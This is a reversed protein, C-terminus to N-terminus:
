QTDVVVRLGARLTRSPMPYGPVIAYRVDFLNECAARLMWSASGVHLPVQVGIDARTYGDLSQTNDSTTFRHSVRDIALSLQVGGITNWEACVHTQEMPLFPLEMGEAKDGAFRANARRNSSRDESVSLLLSPFPMWTARITAGTSLVRDVNVATWISGTSPLWVIRDRTARIWGAIDVTVTEFLRESHAGIGGGVTHEPLLDPNGGPNWYLDNLTPRHDGIMADARLTWDSALPLHTGVTLSADRHWRSEATAGADHWAAARFVAGAASLRWEPAVLLESTARTVGYNGSASVQDVHERAVAAWAIPGEQLSVARMTATITRAITRTDLSHGNTVFAPDLYREDAYIGSITTSLRLPLMADWRTDWAVAITNDTLRAAGRDPITSLAGPAGRSACSMWAVFDHASAAGNGAAVRAFGTWISADNNARTGTESNFSVPYEGSSVTRAAGAAYRLGALSGSADLSATAEGFSGADLCATVRGDGSAPPHYFRVIGAADDPDLRMTGPVVTAGALLSAPITGLDVTGHSPGNLPVGDLEGRVMGAGSGRMSMTSVTGIGGYRQLSLGPVRTLASAADAVGNSRTDIEIAGASPTSCRDDREASVVVSDLHHLHLSDAEAFLARPSTLAITFIAGRLLLHHTRRSVVFGVCRQLPPPPASVSRHSHSRTL